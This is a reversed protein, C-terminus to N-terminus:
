SSLAARIRRLGWFRKVDFLTFIASHPFPGPVFGGVWCSLFGSTLNATSHNTLQAGHCLVCLVWYGHCLVCGGLLYKAGLYAVM